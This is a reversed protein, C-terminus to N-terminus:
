DLGFALDDDADEDVWRVVFEDPKLGRAICVQYLKTQSKGFGIREDGHYAVWQGSHKPLLSALDRRFAAQSRAIMPAIEAAVSVVESGNVDPMASLDKKIQWRCM